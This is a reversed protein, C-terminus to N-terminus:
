PQLVGDIYVKTDEFQPTGPIIIHLTGCNTIYIEETPM